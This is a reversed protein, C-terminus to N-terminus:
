LYSPFCLRSIWNAGSKNKEFFSGHAISIHDSCFYQNLPETFWMKSIPKEENCHACKLKPLQNLDRNMQSAVDVLNVRANQDGMSLTHKRYKVLMRKEWESQKTPKKKIANRLEHVLHITASDGFLCVFCTSHFNPDESRKDIAYKKERGTLTKKCEWCRNELLHDFQRKDYLINNNNDNSITQRTNADARLLSATASLLIPKTTQQQHSDEDCSISVLPNTVLTTTMFHKFSTTKSSPTNSFADFYKKEGSACTGEFSHYLEIM